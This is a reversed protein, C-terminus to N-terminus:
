SKRSSALVSSLILSAFRLPFLVLCLVTKYLTTRALNEEKQPEFIGLAKSSHKIVNSDEKGEPLSSQEPSGDVM